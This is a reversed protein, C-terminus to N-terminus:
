TFHHRYVHSGCISPEDADARVSATAGAEGNEGGVVMDSDLVVGPVLLVPLSSSGPTATGAELLAGTASVKAASRCASVSDALLVSEAGDDADKVISLAADDEDEDEADNSAVDAGGVADDSPTSGAVLVLSGTLAALLSSSQDQDSERDCQYGHLNYQSRTNTQTVHTCTNHLQLQVNVDVTLKNQITSTSRAHAYCACALFEYIYIYIYLLRFYIRSACIRSYTYGSRRHVHTRSRDSDRIQNPRVHIRFFIYIDIQIYTDSNATPVSVTRISKPGHDMCTAVTHVAHVHPCAATFRFSGNFHPWRWFILFQFYFLM